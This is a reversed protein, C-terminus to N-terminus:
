QQDARVGGEEMDSTVGGSSQQQLVVAVAALTHQPRRCYLQAATGHGADTLAQADPECAHGHSALAGECHRRLQAEAACRHATAALQSPRLPPCRDPCAGFAKAKSAKPKAKAKRRRM